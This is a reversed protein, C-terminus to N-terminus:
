GVVSWAVKYSQKVEATLYITFESGSPNTVVAEVAVGSAQTQPTALFLSSSTLTM